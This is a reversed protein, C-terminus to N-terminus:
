QGVAEPCVPLDSEDALVFRISLPYRALTAGTALDQVVIDVDWRPPGGSECLGDQISGECAVDLFGEWYPMDVGAPIVSCPCTPGCLSASAAVTEPRVSVSHPLGRVGSFAVSPVDVDLVPIGVVQWRVGLLVQTRTGPKLETTGLTGHVLDTRRIWARLECAAPRAEGGRAPTDSMTLSTTLLALAVALRRSTPPRPSRYSNSTM